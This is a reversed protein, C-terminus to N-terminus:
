LNSVVGLCIFLGRHKPQCGDSVRYGSVSNDRSDPSKTGDNAKSDSVPVWSEGANAGPDTPVAADPNPPVEANDGEEAPPKEKDPVDKDGSADLVEESVKSHKAAPFKGEDPPVEDESTDRARQAVWPHVGGPPRYDM